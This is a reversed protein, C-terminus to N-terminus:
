TVSFGQTSPHPGLSSVISLTESTTPCLSGLRMKRGLQRDMDSDRGMAEQGHGM